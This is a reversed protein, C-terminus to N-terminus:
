DNSKDIKAEKLKDLGFTDCLSAFENVLEDILNNRLKKYNKNKKIAEIEEEDALFNENKILNEELENKLKDLDALKHATTDNDDNDEAPKVPEIPTDEITTDDDDIDTYDDDDADPSITIINENSLLLNNTVWVNDVLADFEAKDDKDIFLSFFPVKEITEYATRVTEEAKDKSYFDKYTVDVDWGADAFKDLACEVLYQKYGYGFKDVACFMEESNDADYGYEDHLKDIVKYLDGFTFNIEGDKKFASVSNNILESINAVLLEVVNHGGITFTDWPLEVPNCETKTTVDVDPTNNVATEAPTEDKFLFDNPNPITTNM